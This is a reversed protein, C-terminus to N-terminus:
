GVFPASAAFVAGRVPGMAVYQDYYGIGLQGVQSRWPQATAAYCLRNEGDAWEECTPLVILTRTSWPGVPSAATRVFVERTYGPWPSYVMTRGYVPDDVVSLSSVPLQKDGTGSTTPMSMTAAASATSTWSTPASWNANGNWYRWAGPDQVQAPDVRAVTCGSYAPDDPWIVGTTEDSPRGCEYAYLLGGEVVSATGYEAGVPFLNQRLVQGQIRPGVSGVDAYAAPDYIWQVVSVGRSRAEQGKLCVNGVFALVRDRSSAGDPVNTVSLPWMVPTFGAPCPTTFATAPSVFTYPVNGPAVADRTSTPQGPPAWAATNHVFYRNGGGVQPEGSDGFLWLTSGDRLRTSIGADRDIGVLPHGPPPGVVDLSSVGGGPGVYPPTNVYLRRCGLDADWGNGVNLVRVCVEHAGLAAPLEVSFGHNGSKRFWAALDPRHDSATRRHVVGDLTIQVDVSGPAEPDYGWGVVRVSSASAQEVRELNGVADDTGTVGTRCGLARDRDGRVVNVAWVCVDNEGPPLAPTRVDFGHFPGYAPYALAVDQRWQDARHAVAKSQVSVMVDIPEGTDPDLAWGIVRISAGDAVALDLHGIPATGTPDFEDPGLCATLVAMAVLVVLALGGVRANSRESSRM